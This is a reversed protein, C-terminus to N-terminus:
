RIRVHVAHRRQRPKGFVDVDEHEEIPLFPVSEVHVSLVSLVGTRGDVRAFGVVREAMRRSRNGGGICHRGHNRGALRNGRLGSGPVLFAPFDGALPEVFLKARSRHFGLQTLQDVQHLGGVLHSPGLRKVLLVVRHPLSPHRESPGLKAFRLDAPSRCSGGAGSTWASPATDSHSSDAATGPAITPPTAAETGPRGRSVWSM